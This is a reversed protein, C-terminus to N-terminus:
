VGLEEEYDPGEDYKTQSQPKAHRTRDKMINRSDIDENDDRAIESM